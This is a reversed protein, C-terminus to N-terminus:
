RRCPRGTETVACHSAGLLRASRALGAEGETNRQHWHQHLVAWTRHCGSAPAVTAGSALPPLWAGSVEVVVVVVQTEVVRGAPRVMGRCGVTRETKLGWKDGEQQSGRHVM